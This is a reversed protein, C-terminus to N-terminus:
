CQINIIWPQIKVSNNPHNDSPLHLIDDAELHTFTSFKTERHLLFSCANCVQVLSQKYWLKLRPFAHGTLAPSVQVLIDSVQMKAHVMNIYTCLSNIQTVLKDADVM